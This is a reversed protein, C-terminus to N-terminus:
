DGAASMTYDSEKFKFEEAYIVPYLKQIFEKTKVMLYEINTKQKDNLSKWVDESWISIIMECIDPNDLIRPFCSIIV